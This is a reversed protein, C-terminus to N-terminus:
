DNFGLIDDVEDLTMSRKNKGYKAEHEAVINDFYKLTEDNVELDVYESGHEKIFINLADNRTKLGFKGKVVDLVRVSYENLEFRAQTM